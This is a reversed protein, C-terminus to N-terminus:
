KTVPNRIKAAKDALKKKRDDSFLYRVNNVDGFVKGIAGKIM